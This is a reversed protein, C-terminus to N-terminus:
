LIPSLFGLLWDRALRLTQCFTHHFELPCHLWQDWECLHTDTAATGDSQICTLKGLGISGTEHSGQGSHLQLWLHMQLLWAWGLPDRDAAWPSLCGVVVVFISTGVVRSWSIIDDHDSLLGGHGRGLNTSIMCARHPSSGMSLLGGDIMPMRGSSTMSRYSTMLGAMVTVWRSQCGVIPSTNMLICDHASLITPRPSSM